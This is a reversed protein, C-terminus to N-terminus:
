DIEIVEPPGQQVPAPAFISIHPDRGVKSTISLAFSANRAQSISGSLRIARRRQYNTGNKVSNCHFINPATTLTDRKLCFLSSFADSLEQRIYSPLAVDANSDADVYDTLAEGKCVSSVLCLISFLRGTAWTYSCQVHPVKYYLWFSRGHSM